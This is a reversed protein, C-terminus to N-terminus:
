NDTGPPACNRFNTIASMITGPDFGPDSPQGAFPYEAGSIFMAFGDFPGGMSPSLARMRPQEQSCNNQNPRDNQGWYILRKPPGVAFSTASLFMSICLCLARLCM